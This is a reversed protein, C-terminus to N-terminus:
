EAEPAPTDFESGAMPYASLGYLDGADKWASIGGSYRYVNTYGNEVLATAGLDSRLCKVFGCYVVIKQNKNPKEITRTKKGTKPNKKWYKAAPKKTVWKKTKSNWYQKVSVPKVAGEVANLFDSKKVYETGEAGSNNDWGGTSPMPAWANIAGAVHRQGFWKAPMTDVIVIDAESDIDAKLEETTILDYGGAKAERYLNVAVKEADVENNLTPVTEFGSYGAFVTQFGGLVMAFALALAIITAKKKM